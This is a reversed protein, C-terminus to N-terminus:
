EKLYSRSEVVTGGDDQPAFLVMIRNNKTGDYSWKTGKESEETELAGGPVIYSLQEALDAHLNGLGEADLATPPISVRCYVEEETASLELTTGNPHDYFDMGDRDERETMGAGHRAMMGAMMKSQLGLEDLICSMGLFSMYQDWSTLTEQGSAAPASLLGGAVLGAYAIRKM